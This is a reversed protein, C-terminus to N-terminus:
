ASFGLAWLRFASSEDSVGCPEVVSIFTPPTMGVYSDKSPPEHTAILLIVIVIVRKRPSLFGSIVLGM